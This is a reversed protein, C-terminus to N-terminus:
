ARAARQRAEKAKQAKRALQDRYAPWGGLREIIRQAENVAGQLTSLRGSASCECLWLGEVVEIMEHNGVHNCRVTM